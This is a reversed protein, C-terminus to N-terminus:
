PRLAKAPLHGALAQRTFPSTPRPATAAIVDIAEHEALLAEIWDDARDPPTDFAFTLQEAM